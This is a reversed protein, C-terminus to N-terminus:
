REGLSSAMSALPLGEAGDDVPKVPAPCRGDPAQQLREGDTHEREQGAAPSARRNDQGPAKTRRRILILGVMVAYTARVRSWDAVLCAAPVLLIRPLEQVTPSLWSDTRSGRRSPAGASPLDRPRRLRQQPWEPGRDGLGRGLGSPVAVIVAARLLPSVVLLRLRHARAIVPGLFPGLMVTPATAAFAVAGVAVGAAPTLSALWLVVM